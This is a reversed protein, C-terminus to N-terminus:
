WGMLRRALWLLGMAVVACLAVYAVILTWHPIASLFIRFRLSLKVARGGQWPPYWRNGYIM